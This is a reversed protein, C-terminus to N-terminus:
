RSEKLSKSLRKAEEYLQYNMTVMATGYSLCAKEQDGNVMKMTKAFGGDVGIKTDNEYASKHENMMNQFDSQYQKPLLSVVANTCLPPLYLNINPCYSKRLYNLSYCLGVYKGSVEGFDEAPHSHAVASFLILLLTLKKVAMWGKRNDLTSIM